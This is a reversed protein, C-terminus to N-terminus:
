SPILRRRSPLIQPKDYLNEKGKWMVKNWPFRMPLGKMNYGLNTQYAYTYFFNYVKFTYRGKALGEEIQLHLPEDASHNGNTIGNAVVSDTTDLLLQQMAIDPEQQVAHHQEKIFVPEEVLQKATFSHFM